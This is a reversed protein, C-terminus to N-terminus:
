GDDHIRQNVRMSFYFKSGKIARIFLVNQVTAKVFTTLQLKLLGGVVM